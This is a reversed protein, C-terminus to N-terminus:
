RVAIVDFRVDIEDAVKVTGGAASTREVSFDSLKLRVKGTARLTGEHLALKVPIRVRKTKGHIELDGEVDVTRADSASPSASPAELAGVDTKTARFRISPYRAVELVKGNMEKEIEPRDKQSEDDVVALSGAEVELALTWTEPTGGREVTGSFRRVMLRHDHGFASLLGSSGTTVEITSKV